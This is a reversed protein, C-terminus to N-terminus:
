RLRFEKMPVRGREQLERTFRLTRKRRSLRSVEERGEVQDERELRLVSEMPELRREEVTGVEHPLESPLRAKRSREEFQPRHPDM